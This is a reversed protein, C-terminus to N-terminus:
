CKGSLFSYILHRGGGDGGAFWERDHLLVAGLALGGQDRRVLRWEPNSFIRRAPLLLQQQLGPPRALLRELPGSSRAIHDLIPQLVQVMQKM